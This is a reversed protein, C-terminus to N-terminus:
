SLSFSNSLSHFRMHHSLLHARLFKIWNLQRWKIIITCSLDRLYTFCNHLKIPMPFNRERPSPSRYFECNTIETPVLRSAACIKLTLNMLSMHTHLFPIFQVLFQYSIKDPLRNLALWAGFLPRLASTMRSKCFSRQHCCCPFTDGVPNSKSSVIILVVDCMIWCKEDDDNREHKQREISELWRRVNVCINEKHVCMQCQFRNRMHEFFEFVISPVQLIILRLVIQTTKPSFVLFNM